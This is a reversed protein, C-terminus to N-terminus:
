FKPHQKKWECLANNFQETKEFLWFMKDTVCDKAILIYKCGREMVFKKISDSYCRYYRSYM